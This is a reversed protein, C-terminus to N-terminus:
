EERLASSLTKRVPKLLYDMLSREGTRIDVQATMGPSIELQKGTTTTAPMANPVLHVRYYIETGRGTEEKLTDASVYTVRGEVSGHITYDFPDFRLSAQLDKQIRAIDAPLVKAEIILEDDVPVIQMLEEGPRLVGGVTTVRINKVVGAMKATFISNDQEQRRRILLQENQAIENEVQTLEQQADEYFQNRRRAHTAEAENLAREARLLESGSADGQQRLDKVLALERNSLAIAQRLIRLEENLGSQRQRFLASEVEAIEPANTLIQDSLVLTESGVVEARLRAAKARLAHLRAETEAVTAAFSTPDLRALIQGEQVRDGEHVLLEKLIGGDVSQILQVRSRTIVEGSARAVEDITFLNAWTVFAVFGALLLYVWRGRKSEHYSQLREVRKTATPAPPPALLNSSM